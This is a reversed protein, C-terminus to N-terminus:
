GPTSRCRTLRAKQAKKRTLRAYKQRPNSSRSMGNPSMDGVGGRLSVEVPGQTSYLLQHAREPRRGLGATLARGEGGM